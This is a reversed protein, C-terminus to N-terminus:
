KRFTKHGFTCAIAKRATLDKTLYGSGKIQKVEGDENEAFTGRYMFDNWYKYTKGEVTTTYITGKM